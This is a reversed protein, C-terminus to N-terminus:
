QYALRRGCETAIIGTVTLHKSRSGLKGEFAGSRFLPRSKGMRFKYRRTAQPAENAFLQTLSWRFEVDTKLGGSQITKSYFSEPSGRCPARLATIPLNLIVPQLWSPTSFPLSRFTPGIQAEGLYSLGETQAVVAVRRSLALGKAEYVQRKSSQVEPAANM